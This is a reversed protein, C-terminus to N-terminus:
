TEQGDDAEDAKVIVCLKTITRKLTGSKTKVDVIRVVGNKDPYLNVVRGLSWKGRPSTTDM